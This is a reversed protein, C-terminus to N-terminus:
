AGMRREAAYTADIEAISRDTDEVIRKQEPTLADFNVVRVKGDGGCEDCREDYAGRMYDELEEPEWDERNIVGLRQSHAGDGGCCGCIEWKQPLDDTIDVGDDDEYYPKRSM